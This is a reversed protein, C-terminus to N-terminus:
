DLIARSLYERERQGDYEIKMMRKMRNISIKFNRWKMREDKYKRQLFHMSNRLVKKRREIYRSNRLTRGNM